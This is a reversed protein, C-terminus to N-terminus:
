FLVPFPVPPLVHCCDAPETKLAANNIHNVSYKHLDKYKLTFYFCIYECRPTKHKYKGVVLM